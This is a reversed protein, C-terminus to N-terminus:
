SRSQLSRFNLAEIVYNRSRTDCAVLMGLLLYSAGIFTAMRMSVTITFPQMALNITLCLIMYSTTVIDCRPIMDLAKPYVENRLFSSM